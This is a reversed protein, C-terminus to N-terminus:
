VYADSSHGDNAGESKNVLTKEICAAIQKALIAVSPEQMIGRHTGPVEFTEVGGDTLESWGYCVGRGHSGSKFLSIEGHYGQPIYKRLAARNSRMILMLHEPIEEEIVDGLIAEQENPKEDL